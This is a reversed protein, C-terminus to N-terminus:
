ITRIDQTRIMMVTSVDLFAYLVEPREMTEPCEQKLSDVFNQLAVLRCVMRSSLQFGGKESLEM